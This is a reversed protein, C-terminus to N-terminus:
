RVGMAITPEAKPRSLVDRDRFRQSAEAVFAAFPAYTSRSAMPRATAPEAGAARCGIVALVALGICASQYDSFYPCDCEVLLEKGDRQLGVDYLRSGRVKAVAIWADGDLQRVRGSSYYAQGRDQIDSAVFSRLKRALEM